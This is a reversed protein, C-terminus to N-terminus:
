RNESNSKADIVPTESNQKPEEKQTDKANDKAVEKPAEKTTDVKPTAVIKQNIIAKTPCKKVCAGCHICNEYKVKALNNEVHIADFMCAKECLKCGICGVSCGAKVDKGKDNSNCDVHITNKHPVFDILTKPCAPICKGCAVCKDKNVVAIGDVIHIADFACAQVCSGYGMCGYTCTKGSTRALQSAMKCDQIGYYDYTESANDCTGQCKVYAVEREKVSPEIGMIKSVNAACSEGGVPCGNVAATGEAVAKAFAACGTYGCGGCNAGPLVEVIEGIKPDEEVKLKVGAYGLVLGFFIGISGLALVAYLIEM